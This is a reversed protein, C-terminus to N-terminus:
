SVPGGPFHRYSGMETLFIIYIHTYICIYIIYVYKIYIYIFM